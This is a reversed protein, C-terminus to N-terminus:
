HTPEHDLSARLMSPAREAFVRIEDIVGRLPAVVADYLGDENLSEAIVARLYALQQRAQRLAWARGDAAWCGQMEVASAEALTTELLRRLDADLTEFPAPASADGAVQQLLSAVDDLAAGAADLFAWRARTDILYALPSGALEREHISAGIM